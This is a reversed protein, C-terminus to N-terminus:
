SRRSENGDIPRVISDSPIKQFEIPTWFSTMGRQKLGERVMSLALQNGMESGRARDRKQGSTSFVFTIGRLLLGVGGLTMLATILLGAAALFASYAWRCQAYRGGGRMAPPVWFDFGLSLLWWAGAVGIAALPVSIVLGTLCESRYHKLVCTDCIPVTVDTVDAFSPKPQAQVQRGYHFVYDASESAGCKKCAM